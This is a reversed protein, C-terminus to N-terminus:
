STLTFPWREGRVIRSVSSRYIGFRRGIDACTVGQARLARITQVDEITLPTKNSRYGFPQRGKKTRDRNNDLRTGVFLHDPNVCQPTDCRHCIVKTADNLDFAKFAAASARHTRVLHRRQVRIQGYGYGTRAGTWLWCGTRQDVVHKSLLTARFRALLADDIVLM